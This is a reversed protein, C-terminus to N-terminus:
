RSRSQSETKKKEMSSEISLLDQITGKAEGLEVRLAQRVEVERLRLEILDCLGPHLDSHRALIERLMKEGQRTGSEAESPSTLLLGKQLRGTLPSEAARRDLETMMRQRGEGDLAAARKMFELYGDVPSEAAARPDGSGAGQRAGPQLVTCGCVLAAVLVCAGRSLRRAMSNRRYRSM